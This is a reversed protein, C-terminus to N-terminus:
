FRPSVRINSDPLKVRGALWRMMKKGFGKSFKKHTLNRSPSLPDGASQERRSHSWHTQYKMTMGVEVMEASRKQTATLGDASTKKPLACSKQLTSPGVELNKVEERFELHLRGEYNNDVIGWWQQKWFLWGIEILESRNTVCLDNMVLMIIAWFSRSIKIYYIKLIIM